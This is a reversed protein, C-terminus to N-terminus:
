GEPVPLTKVPDAPVVKEACIVACSIRHQSGSDKKFHRDSLRTNSESFVKDLNVGAEAHLQNAAVPKRIVQGAATMTGFGISSPGVIGSLGGLFIRPQDLFVGETVTGILSPTAKDGAEGWPAYNFHIFGSGVETHQVRSKGGTILVDCFNIM